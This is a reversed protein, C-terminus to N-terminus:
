QTRLPITPSAPVPLPNRKSVANAASHHPEGSCAPPEAQESRECRFPPARRLSCPLHAALSFAGAVARGVGGGMEGKKEGSAACWEAFRALTSRFGRCVDRLSPLGTSLHPMGRVSRGAPVVCIITTKCGKPSCPKTPYPPHPLMDCGLPTRAFCIRSVATM